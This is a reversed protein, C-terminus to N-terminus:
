RQFRRLEYSAFHKWTEDPNAAEISLMWSRDAPDYTLTDRFTGTAYPITFRISNGVIKGMGHPVSYKAGFSDMWHVIIAGSDSDHGLFVRAEYESPVQVDSMHFETFTSELVSSATMAYTVPKGMVDGTMTWRGDLAKLIDPRTDASRLLHKENACGTALLTLAIVAISNRM